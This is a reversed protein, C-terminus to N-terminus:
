PYAANRLWSLPNKYLDRIDKRNLRLMAIRELGQGWALVRVPEKIGWPTCVEPRFIGAGGIEMWKGIEKSFVSVELSPETYPFFGPRTIVKEFGMKQYFEVLTGRLDALTVNEGIVIGEVQTFEALHKFDVKENRFVRDVSFVKLPLKVGEAIAKGLQRVTTATTHTRLLVQRAIDPNWKYGWGTSGSAGGNEHTQSIAEVIEDDPLRAVSPNSLYFTDHMERAPHDQPQYLADFNFFASEIIPGRIESFGMSYFIDRVKNIIEVLPHIKGAFIKQAPKEVDYTKFSVEQWKGSKILETTLHTVEEEAQKVKNPDLKKGAATLRIVRKTRSREEVLKRKKLSEVFSKLNEPVDGASIADGLDIMRLLQEEEREEYEQKLVLVLPAGKGKSQSAWRAQKLANLAVFFMKDELNLEGAAKEKLENLDIQKIENDILYKLLRTEPLHNTAYDKGEETLVYETVPEEEYTDLKNDALENVASMVVAYDEGMAKSLAAAEVGDYGANKLEQLVRVTM